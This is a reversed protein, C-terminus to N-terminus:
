KWVEQNYRAPIYKIFKEEEKPESILQEKSQQRKLTEESEKIFADWAVYDTGMKDMQSSFVLLGRYGKIAGNGPVKDLRKVLANKKTDSFVEGKTEIVYIMGDKFLIYDPYYKKSGYTFFINRENRIWFPKGEKAVGKLIADAYDALQLETYSDFKEYDFISKEYGFFHYQKEILEVLKQKDKVNVRTKNQVQDEPIKLEFDHFQKKLNWSDEENLKQFDLIFYDREIKNRYYFSFADVFLKLALKDDAGDLKYYQLGIHNFSDIYDRFAKKVTETDPLCPLTKQVIGYIQKLEKETLQLTEPKGGKEKIQKHYVNKDSFIDVELFFQEPRYKLYRKTNDNEGEFCNDEMFKATIGQVNTVLSILSVDQKAKMDAKIHPIYKGTLLDSKAKNIVPTRIKDFSLYKNNLGFEQQIAEIVEVFNKGQDCVIHLKEANAKLADKEDDFERKDKNIRVGRGIIQKVSTKFDTDTDNIVAMSYINPLDIGEDLRNMYVVIEVNNKRIDLFKKETEKDSQGYFFIATSAARQIDERLLKIKGQYKNKYLDTLLTTIEIDQVKIKEL